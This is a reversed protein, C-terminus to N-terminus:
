LMDLTKVDFFLPWFQFDSSLKGVQEILRYVDSHMLQKFAIWWVFEMYCKIYLDELEEM